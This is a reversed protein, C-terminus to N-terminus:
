QVAYPKQGVRVGSNELTVNFDGVLHPSMGQNRLNQLFRGFGDLNVMRPVETVPRIGRAGIEDLILQLPEMPADVFDALTWV